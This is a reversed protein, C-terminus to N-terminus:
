GKVTDEPSTKRHAM